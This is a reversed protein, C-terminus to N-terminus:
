NNQANTSELKYFSQSHSCVPCIAPANVAIHINGCVKCKWVVVNDKEFVKGDELDKLLNRYIQEHHKEINGILRFKNAIEKFGEEDAEIAFKNYMDVWEYNEGAAADAINLKTDHIGDLYKYHIKAHALENNSIESFISAIEEYGEKKAVGAYYEYKCRAQSEGAFASMLNQETKSGKLDM